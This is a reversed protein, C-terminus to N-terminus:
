ADSIEFALVPLPNGSGNEIQTKYEGLSYVPDDPHAVSTWNGTTPNPLVTNLAAGAFMETYGYVSWGGMSNKKYQRYYAMEEVPGSGSCPLSAPSGGIPGGPGNIFWLQVAQLPQPLITVLLVAILVRSERLM